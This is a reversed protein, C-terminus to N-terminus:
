IDENNHFTSCFIMITGHEDLRDVGFGDLFGERDSIIPLALKLYVLKEAMKVVKVKSYKTSNILFHIKIKYYM